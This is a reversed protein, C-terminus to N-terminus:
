RQYVGMTTTEALVHNKMAMLVENKSAGSSLGLTDVDLAILKFYYRHRGHGKPPCPGGYGMRGFDTNGNKLGNSVAKNGDGRNLKKASAPLDYVVWHTFTGMPADPDEVILAFSKTGAPADDWSVEPSLDEGDCTFKRPISHGETFDTSKIRFGMNGGGNANLGFFTIILVGAFYFLIKNRSYLEM